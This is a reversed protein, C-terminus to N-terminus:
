RALVRFAAWDASPDERRAAATAERLATALPARDRHVRSALKAALTDSVPRTPALVENSGAVVFAQALGLGEAEGESKAADCGSLVVRAPAPALALVDAVGLRGGGALPLASEWGELGAFVGHGAYHVIGAGRMASTVKPATADERVLLDVREKEFTAAVARAEEGSSPLDGTPDGVVLVRDRAASPAANSGLGVPYDGM